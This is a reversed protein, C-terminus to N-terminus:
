PTKVERRVGRKKSPTSPKFQEMSELDVVYGSSLVPKGGGGAAAELLDCDADSYPTWGGGSHWSWV